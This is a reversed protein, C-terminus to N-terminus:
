KRFFRFWAYVPLILLLLYLAVNGWQLWAMLLMVLLLNILLRLMTTSMGTESNSKSLKRAQKFSGSMRSKLDEASPKETEPDAEYKIRAIRSEREEQQPDFYKPDYRFRQHRPIKGFLTPIKIMLCDKQEEVEFIPVFNGLHGNNQAISNLLKIRSNKEKLTKPCFEALWQASLIM